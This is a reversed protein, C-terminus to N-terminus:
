KCRGDCRAGSVNGYKKHEKKSTDATSSKKNKNQITNDNCSVKIVKYLFINFISILQM